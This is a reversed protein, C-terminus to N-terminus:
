GALGLGEAVRRGYEPDARTFHEIQRRQIEESVSVMSGVINDILRQQEASSMLRYLDGAQIFDDSDPRQDYRDVAGEIALPPQRYRPDEQPGGFSNPEYNVEKGANGDFRMAGDRHYTHVPCQPRNIPLAQHNVGLRYRQADAYSLVRGQLVKDPSFGIGSVVNSPAFAAQEVEAFYNQPNRNLEMVGVEILPYDSHRWVKTLDFPNVYYDAAAEEPMIQVHMRWRPFEKNEIAEFLDRTAHDPDTGALATAEADTLCAIGQETKVHFKVWVRKGETNILSYTHSGFGHMHRYSRPTGRDSFLITVQHLSEPSLSWYDWMMTPSKLHRQPCRKQSHIFNDFKLPDRLFFVPTNNGVLDWNGEETYFKMAFGRPDRASDASGSEGGVTSFRVFCDTKKGVGDFIKAKTYETIDGTVTLTGHAGVGKAHVVREPIRERNFTAMKEILVHDEMLLPGRPGASLSNQNDEVPAGSSTTLPKKQDSM